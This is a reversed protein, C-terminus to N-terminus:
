DRDGRIGTGARGLELAIAPRGYLGTEKRGVADGQVAVAVEVYRRVVADASDIGETAGNRCKGPGPLVARLAVATRGCPGVERLWDSDGDVVLAIQVDGVAFVMADSLDVCGRFSHACHRADALGM